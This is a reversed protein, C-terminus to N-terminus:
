HPIDAKTFVKNHIVQGLQGLSPLAKGNLTLNLAGASGVTVLDINDNAQINKSSGASLKGQFVQQGDAKILLWCDATLTMDLSLKNDAQTVVTSTTQQPEQAKAVPPTTKTNHVKNETKPKQPPIVPHKQPAQWLSNVGFLTLLALICLGIIVLGRPLKMNKTSTTIPEIPKITEEPPAEATKFAALIEADDLGLARAYTRLFGKVYTTGPLESFNEKELADLYHIRIKTIEEVDALSWGKSERAERLSDGISLM